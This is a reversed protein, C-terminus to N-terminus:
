DENFFEDLESSYYKENDSVAKFQGRSVKLILGAYCEPCECNDGEDHENLDLEFGEKCEPCSLKM